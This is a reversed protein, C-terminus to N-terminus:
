EGEGEVPLRHDGVNRETINEITQEMSMARGESWAKEFAEEGLV